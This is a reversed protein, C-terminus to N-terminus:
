GHTIGLRLAEAPAGPGTDFWCIDGPRALADRGRSREAFRAALDAAAGQWVQFGGVMDGPVLIGRGIWDVALAVMRRYAEPPQLDLLSQCAGQVEYDSTWDDLTSELVLRRVSDM